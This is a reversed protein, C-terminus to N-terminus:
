GTSRRYLDALKSLVKGLTSDSMAPKHIHLRWRGTSTRTLEVETQLAVLVLGGVALAAPEIFRSSDSEAISIARRVTEMHDATAALHALAARALDGDSGVEGRPTAYHALEPDAMAERLRADLERLQDTDPTAGSHDAVLALVRIAQRDSLAEIAPSDMTTPEQPSNTILRDLLARVIATDIPDLKDMLADPEREGDLIRRLVQALAQWHKTDALQDLLEAVTTAAQHDGRAAAALAAIRQQWWEELHRQANRAQEASLERATQIIETLAAEATEPDLALSAILATFRVGEVQEVQAAIEAVSGPLWAQDGLNRLDHALM